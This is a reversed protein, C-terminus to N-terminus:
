HRHGQFRRLHPSLGGPRWQRHQRAGRHDACIPPRGGPATMIVSTGAESTNMRAAAPILTYLDTVVQKPDLSHVPIVETVVQADMPIDEWNTVINVPTAANNAAAELTM